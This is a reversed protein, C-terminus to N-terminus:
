KDGEWGAKGEAMLIYGGQLSSVELQMVICMPVMQATTRPFPPGQPWRGEEAKHM